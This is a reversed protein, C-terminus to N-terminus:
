LGSASAPHQLANAVADHARQIYRQNASMLADHEGTSTVLRLVYNPKVIYMLGLAILIFCSAVIVSILPSSAFLWYSLAAGIALVILLPSRRTALKRVSATQVDTLAYTRAGVVLHQAGVLIHRDQYVTPEAHAVQPNQLPNRKAHKQSAGVPDIRTSTFVSM